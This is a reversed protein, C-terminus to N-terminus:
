PCAGWSSLVTALDAGDVLGSGDVDSRPLKGGATGWANIVAALDVANVVGDEVVDASCPECQDPINNANADVLEGARIQGYDVIGDNNCDASWEIIYAVPLPYPGCFSDGVMDNWSQRPAIGTPSFYHLSDENLGGCANNPAGSIWISWPEGSQWEWGGLPESAGSLQRGGLWPGMAGDWLSPSRAIQWVFNDEAATRPSALYGGLSSALSAAASWTVGTVERGAQYWHGNGGDAVRWQVADQAAASSSFVSSSLVVAAVVGASRVIM